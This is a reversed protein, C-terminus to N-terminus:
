RFLKKQLISSVKAVLHSAYFLESFVSPYSSGTNDAKVYGVTLELLRTFIFCTKLSLFFFTKLSLVCLFNTVIYKQIIDTKM